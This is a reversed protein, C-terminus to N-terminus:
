LKWIAFADEALSLTRKEIDKKEWKLKRKKLHSLVDHVMKIGSRKYMDIKENLIKNSAERNYEKGLPMLNGIKNVYENIDSKNLGWKKDPNQPLIHEITIHDFVEEQNKGYNIKELIYGILKIQKNNGYEIKSFNSIFEEKDPFLYKLDKHFNSLIKECEAKTKKSRKNYEDNLKISYKSYINELASPSKKAITSFGFTFNEIWEFAEYFMKSNYKNWFSDDRIMRLLTLLISRSQKVNLKSIRKLSKYINLNEKKWDNINPVMIMRYLEVESVLTSLFEDYNSISHKIARFLKKETIKKRTSLWHHRIFQTIDAVDDVTLLNKIKDWEMEIEKNEKEIKKFILNKILDAQSLELSRANLTEFFTFADEESDVKIVILELNKVLERIKRLEEIKGNNENYKELKRYIAEKIIKYNNKILKEEVSVPSSEEIKASEKQIYKEFFIRASNSAIVKFKDNGDDDKNSIYNSQIQNSKNKDKLELFIDRIVSFLITVTLIRQQGDVIDQIKDKKYYENNLVFTGFFYTEESFLDELLNEVQESDWSYERQYSPVRFITDKKDFFDGIKSEESKFSEM